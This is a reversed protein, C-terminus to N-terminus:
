GGGGRERRKESARKLDGDGEGSRKSERGGGWDKRRGGKGRGGRVM